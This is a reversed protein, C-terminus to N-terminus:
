HLVDRRRNRHFKPDGQSVLQKIRKAKGKSIDIPQGFEFHSSVADSNMSTNTPELGNTTGPGSRVPQMLIIPQETQEAARVLIGDSM